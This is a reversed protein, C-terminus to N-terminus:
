GKKKSKVFEIVKDAVAEADINDTDIIIDFPKLDRGFEIGYLEKYLKYNKEDREKIIRICEEVGIGDREAMREALNEVSGSLWVKIGCKCIWPLTYSTIIVNGGEAKKIVEEDAKKDFDSIQKRRDAFRMGEETDWWGEGTVKFGLGEAMEKLIGGVGIVKMGLRKSLIGAVTTKGM